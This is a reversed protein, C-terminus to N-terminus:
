FHGEEDYTMVRKNQYYWWLKEDLFTKWTSSSLICERLVSQILCSLFLDVSKQSTLLSRSGGIHTRYKPHRPVSLYLEEALPANFTTSISIQSGKHALNKVSCRESVLWVIGGRSLISAQIVDRWPGPSKCQLCVDRLPVVGLMFNRDSVSIRNWLFESTIQAFGASSFSAQAREKVSLIAPPPFASTCCGNWVRVNTWQGRQYYLDLTWVHTAYM